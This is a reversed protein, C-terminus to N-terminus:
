VAWGSPMRCIVAPNSGARAAEVPQHIFSSM